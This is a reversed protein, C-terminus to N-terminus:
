DICPDSILRICEPRKIGDDATRKLCTDVTARESATPEFPDAAHAPVSAGLVIGAAIALNQM